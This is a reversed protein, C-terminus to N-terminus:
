YEMADDILNYLSQIGLTKFMLIVDFPKHGTNIKPQKKCLIKFTSRFNEWLVIESLHLLPDGIRSLTNLRNEIDFFGDIM